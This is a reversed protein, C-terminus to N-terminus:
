DIHNFANLLESYVKFALEQRNFDGSADISKMHIKYRGNQMHVLSCFRGDFLKPNRKAYGRRVAEEFRFGGKAKSIVGNFCKHSLQEDEQQFICTLDISKFVTKKMFFFKSNHVNAVFRRSQLVNMTRWFWGM